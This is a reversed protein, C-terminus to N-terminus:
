GATSSSTSSSSTIRTIAFGNAQSYTGSFSNGDAMGALTGDTKFIIIYSIGAMLWFMGMFNVLMPRTKEPKLVLALGLAVALLSRALTVGFATNHKM